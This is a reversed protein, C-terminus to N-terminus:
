LAIDWVSEAPMAHRKALQLQQDGYPSSRSRRACGVSHHTAVGGPARHSLHHLAGAEAPLGIVRHRLAVVQTSPAARHRVVPCARPATTATYRIRPQTLTPRQPAMPTAKSGNGGPSTPPSSFAQMWDEAVAAQLEDQEVEMVCEPAPLSSKSVRRALPRRMLLYRHDDTSLVPQGQNSSLMLGCHLEREYSEFEHRSVFTGWDLLELLAAEAACNEQRSHHQLTAAAHLSHIRLPEDDLVKSTLLISSTLLLEWNATNLTVKKMARHLLIMTVVCHEISCQRELLDLTMSLHMLTPAPPRSSSRRPSPEFARAASNSTSAASAIQSARLEDGSCIAVRLAVAADLALDRRAM